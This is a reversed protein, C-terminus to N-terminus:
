ELEEYESEGEKRKAHVVFRNGEGSCTSLTIVKDQESVTVDTDYYSRRIMEEVFAGFQADHRFGITYVEDLESVDYYAFIQYRYVRNETYIVFHPHEKYFGETKYNKLQGFMSQNKMNHGYIITHCDQFDAHNAAEMFISGAANTQGSFTHNLYYDDDEGQMIPYSLDMNEFTIWGIVESNTEKLESIAQMIQRDTASEWEAEKDVIKDVTENGELSDETLEEKQQVKAFVREQLAHYEQESERYEWITSGLYCIAALILMIGIMYFLLWKRKKWILGILLGIVLVIFIVGGAFCVSTVNEAFFEM